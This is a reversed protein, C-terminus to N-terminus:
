EAVRAMFIHEEVSM